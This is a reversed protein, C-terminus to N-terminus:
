GLAECVQAVVHNIEQWTNQDEDEGQPLVLKKGTTQEIWAVLAANPIVREEGEAACSLAVSQPRATRVAIEIPVFCIPALVRKTFAENRTRQDPPLDLLPYGVYLVEAGTDQVYTRADEVITRLKGLTAVMEEYATRAVEDAHIGGSAISALAAPALKVQRETGLLAAMVESAEKGGIKAVQVLDIRQRSSHPRCSLVPGTALSGYLRELM